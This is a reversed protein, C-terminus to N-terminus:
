KDDGAGTGTLGVRQGVPYRVKDNVPRIWAADQEEGEGPSGRALHRPADLSNYGGGSGQFVRGM